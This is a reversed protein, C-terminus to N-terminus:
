AQDPDAAAALHALEVRPQGPATLEALMALPQNIADLVLVSARPIGPDNPERGAESGLASGLRPGLASGLRPGLASGLRPGLASFNLPCHDLRLPSGPEDSERVGIPLGHSRCILPRQEYVSCRGDLRLACARLQSEQGRERLRRRTEPDDLGLTALAERIPAAEVEFVSFRTHCCSECGPRCAFQEPTRAVAQAFHDDVRARLRVLHGHTM